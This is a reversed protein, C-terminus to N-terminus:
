PDQKVRPRKDRYSITLQSQFLSVFRLYWQLMVVAWQTIIENIKYHIKLSLLFYIIM